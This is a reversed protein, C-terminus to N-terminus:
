TTKLKRQVFVRFPFALRATDVSNVALFPANATEFDEHLRRMEAIQAVSPEHQFLTVVLTYKGATYLVWRGADIQERRHFVDTKGPASAASARFKEMFAAQPLDFTGLAEFFTGSRRHYILVGQAKGMRSQRIAQTEGNKDEVLSSDEAELAADAMDLHAAYHAYVADFQERSIAGAAYESLVAALKTQTQVKFEAIRTRSRQSM